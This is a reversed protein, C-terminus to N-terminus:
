MVAMLSCSMLSAFHSMTTSIRFKCGQLSLKAGDGTFVVVFQFVCTFVQAFWDKM